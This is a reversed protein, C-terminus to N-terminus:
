LLFAIITYAVGLVMIGALVGCAIRLALKSTDVKKKKVNKKNM